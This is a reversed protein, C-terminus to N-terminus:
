EPRVKNSSGLRRTLLSGISAELSTVIRPGPFSDASSSTKSSEANPSLPPKVSAPPLLLVETLKRIDDRLQGIVQMSTTMAKQHDEEMKKMRERQSRSEAKILEELAKSDDNFGVGSMVPSLGPPESLFGHDTLRDVSASLSKGGAMGRISGVVSARRSTRAAAANFGKNGGDGDLSNSNGLNATEEVPNIRSLRREAVRILETSDWASIKNPKANSAAANNLKVLAESVEGLGHSDDDSIESPGNITVKAADLPQALKSALDNLANHSRATPLLANMFPLTLIEPSEPQQSEIQPQESPSDVDSTAFAPTWWRNRGDATDDDIDKNTKSRKNARALVSSRRRARPQTEQAETGTGPVTYWRTKQVASLPWSYLIVSKSKLDASIDVSEEVGGLSRDSIASGRYRSHLPKPKLEASKLTLSDVLNYRNPFPWYLELEAMLGAVECLWKGTTNKHDQQYINTTMLAIIINALFILFVLHFLIRLTFIQADSVNDVVSYDGTIMSLISQVSVGLNEFHPSVGTNSLAAAANEVLYFGGLFSTAMILYPIFIPVIHIAAIVWLRVLPGISPLIRLDLISRLACMVLVLSMIIPPVYLDLFAGRISCVIVAMHIGNDVLNTHSTVYDAPNDILERAEQLLFFFAFGVSICALPLMAYSPPIDSSLGAYFRSLATARQQILIFTSTASAVFLIWILFQVSFRRWFNCRLWHYEMLARIVPQLIIDEDGCELLRILPSTPQRLLRALPHTAEHIGDMTLMAAPAMCIVSETEQLEGKASSQTLPGEFDLKGWMAKSRTKQTAGYLSTTGLKLGRVPHRRIEADHLKDRPVCGPVPVCSVENLFWRAEEPFREAILPLVQLSDCNQRFLKPIAGPGGSTPSSMLSLDPDLMSELLTHVMVQHGSKVAELLPGKFDSCWQAELLVEVIGAHNLSCCREFLEKVFIEHKAPTILGELFPGCPDNHFDLLESVTSVKSHGGCAALYLLVYSSLSVFNLYEKLEAVQSAANGETSAVVDDPQDNSDAAGIFVRPLDDREEAADHLAVVKDMIALEMAALIFDMGRSCIPIAATVFGEANIKSGFCDLIVRACGARGAHAAIELATAATEGDVTNIVDMEFSLLEEILSVDEEIPQLLALFLFSQIIAIDRSGRKKDIIKLLAPGVHNLVKSAMTYSPITLFVSEADEVTDIKQIHRLVEAQFFDLASQRLEPMEDDIAGFNSRGLVAIAYGNWVADDANENPEGTNAAEISEIILNLMDMKAIVGYPPSTKAMIHQTVHEFRLARTSSWRALNSAPESIPRGALLNSHFQAIAARKEASDFLSSTDIEDQSDIRNGQELSEGLTDVSTGIIIHVSGAIPETGPDVKKVLSMRRNM